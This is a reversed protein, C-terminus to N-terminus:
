GGRREEIKARIKEIAAPMAKEVRALDWGTLSILESPETTTVTANRLEKELLGMEGFFEGPGLQAVESGERSVSVKGSEIALFEYSFDGERVLQKGEGVDVKEAFPAIQGLEEESFSEFLQIRRLREIDVM